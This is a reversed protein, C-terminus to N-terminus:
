AVGGRMVLSGALVALPGMGPMAPLDCPGVLPWSVDGSLHREHVHLLPAGKRGAHVHASSQRRGPCGWPEEPLQTQAM